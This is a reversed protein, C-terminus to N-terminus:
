ANKVGCSASSVAIKQHNEALVGSPTLSYVRCEAARSLKKARAHLTYRVKGSWFPAPPGPLWRGRCTSVAFTSGLTQAFRSNRVILHIRVCQLPRMAKMDAVGAERKEVDLPVDGFLSGALYLLM